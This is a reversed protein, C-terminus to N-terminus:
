RQDGEEGQSLAWGVAVVAMGALFGVTLMQNDGIVLGTVEVTFAAAALLRLVWLTTYSM